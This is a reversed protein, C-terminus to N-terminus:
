KEVKLNNNMMLFHWRGQCKPMQCGTKQGKRKRNVESKLELFFPINLLTMCPHMSLRETMDLKKCAWAHYGALSREGHFKEPLFSPTPQWTKRWPIKRVWPDFRFRKCRKCQCASEKGRLWKLVGWYHWLILYYFKSRSYTRRTRLLMFKSLNDIEEPSM